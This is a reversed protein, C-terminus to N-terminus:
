SGMMGAFLHRAFLGGAYGRDGPTGMREGVRAAQPVIGARAAADVPNVTSVAEMGNMADDVVSQDAWDADGGLMGKYPAGAHSIDLGSGLMGETYYGAGIGATAPASPAVPLAMAGGLLPLNRFWPEAAAMGFGLIIAGQNRAVIPVKRGVAYAGGIGLIAAALKAMKQNGGVVPWSQMAAWNGIVRGAVFGATGGLVPTVIQSMMESGSPLSVFNKLLRVIRGHRRRHRRNSRMRRSRRRRRAM